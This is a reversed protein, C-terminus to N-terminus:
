LRGTLALIILIIIILGALGGGVRPGGAYFGGGGLVLLLILLIVLLSMASGCEPHANNSQITSSMSLQATLRRGWWRRSDSFAILEGGASNVSSSIAVVSVTSIRPPRQSSKGAGRNIIADCWKVQTAIQWPSAILSVEDAIWLPMPMPRATRIAVAAQACAGTPVM